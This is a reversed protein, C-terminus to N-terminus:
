EFLRRPPVVIVDGSKLVVASSSGPRTLAQYDLLYTMQGGAGDKRHLEIRKPSAFKTPGGSTALFQLLTTGPAVEQRGPAAVEGMIYVPITVPKRTGGGGTREALQGVSLFVTPSSAFNPALAAAVDGRLEDLTRGAARVTGVLPVSVSGDPLVLLSRNLANDELVELQLTDGRRIEYSSQASAPAAIMLALGLFAGIRLLLRTLYRTMPHAATERKTKAM